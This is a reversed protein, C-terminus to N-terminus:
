ILMEYVIKNKATLFDSSLNELGNHSLFLSKLM